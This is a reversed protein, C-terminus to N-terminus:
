RKEELRGYADRTTREDLVEPLLSHFVESCLELLSGASITVDFKYDDLATESIHNKQESTLHNIHGPREIRVSIHPTEDWSDIENPFRCDDIIIYDFIDKSVYVLRQVTEVWFDPDRNRVEDTGWWQLLQRGEVNKQGDWGFLLRATDKVYAAYPIIAARYGLYMLENLAYNAAMTKGAEAKGSFLIVKKM